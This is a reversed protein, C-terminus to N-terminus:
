RAFLTLLALAVILCYISASEIFAQALINSRFLAAYNEPNYVIQMVSKSGVLGTSTSTGISGIGVTFAATLFVVSNIFYNEPTTPIYIILLATLLSFILSTEIVAGNIISFPFLKPYADRNMGVTSCSANSFVGQGISTGISGLAMVISTSFYKLGVFFDSILSFNGVIILGIVFSFIVSAEILSQSVLMFTLIKNAFIPQRSISNVSSKVAFSSSISIACASIGMMLGVGLEAFAIGYNINITNGFLLMLTIVLALIIGSEIFALGVIMSRFIQDRGESQVELASLSGFAAFGQGIGAGIAGLLVALGVAMYHLSQPSIM